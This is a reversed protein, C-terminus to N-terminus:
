FSPPADFYNLPNVIQDYHIRPISPDNEKPLDLDLHLWFSPRDPLIEEAVRRKVEEVISPDLRLATLCFAVLHGMKSIFNVLFDVIDLPPEWNPPTAISSSRNMSFSDKL